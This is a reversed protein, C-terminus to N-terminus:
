HYGLGFYSLLGKSAVKAPATAPTEQVEEWDDPDVSASTQTPYAQQQDQGQKKGGKARHTNVKVYEDDENVMIWDPDGAHKQHQPNIAEQETKKKSEMSAPSKDLLVEKSHEKPHMATLIHKTNDTSGEKKETKVGHRMEALNMAPSGGDIHYPPCKLTLDFMKKEMPKFEQEM